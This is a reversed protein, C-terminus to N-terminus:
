FLCSEKNQEFSNEFTVVFLRWWYFRSKNCMFLFIQEQKPVTLQLFYFFFLFYVPPICYVRKKKKGSNMKLWMLIHRLCYSQVIWWVFEASYLLTVWYSGGSVHSKENCKLVCDWWLCCLGWHTVFVYFYGKHVIDPKCCTKSKSPPLIMTWINQQTGTVFVFCFVILLVFRSRHVTFWHVRYCSTQLSVCFRGSVMIYISM